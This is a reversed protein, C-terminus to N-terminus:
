FSSVQLWLNADSQHIDNTQAVRKSIFTKVLM